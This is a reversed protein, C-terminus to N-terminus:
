FLPGCCLWMNCGSILTFHLCAPLGRVWVSGLGGGNLIIFLGTPRFAQVRQHQSKYVKGLRKKCAQVSFNPAQVHKSLAQVTSPCMKPVLRFPWGESFCGCRSLTQWTKKASKQTRKEQSHRQQGGCTVGWQAPALVPSRGVGPPVALRGSLGPQRRSELGPASGVPSSFM